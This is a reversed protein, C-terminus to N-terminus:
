RPASHGASNTTGMRAESPGARGVARQWAVCIVGGWGRRPGEGLFLLLRSLSPFHPNGFAVAFGGALARALGLCYHFDFRTVESGFLRPM